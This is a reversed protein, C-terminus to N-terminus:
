WGLAQRASDPLFESRTGEAIYVTGDTAAVVAAVTHHFPWAPQIALAVPSAEDHEQLAAILQGTTEIPM